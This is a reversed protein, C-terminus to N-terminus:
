VYKQERRFLTAPAGAGNKGYPGTALEVLPVGPIGKVGHGKQSKDWQPAEKFTPTLDVRFFSDAGPISSSLLASPM